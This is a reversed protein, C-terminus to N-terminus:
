TENLVTLIGEMMTNFFSEGFQNLSINISACIIRCNDITYELSSDVRDISPRWPRVRMGDPKSNNFKIGTIACKMQSKAIMEKVDQVSIYFGIRRTIANKRCSKWLDVALKMDRDVISGSIQGYLELARDLDHGLNIRKNENSLYYYTERRKGTYKYVRTPLESCISRKGSM